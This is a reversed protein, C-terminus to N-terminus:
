PSTAHLVSRARRTQADLKTRADVLDASHATIMRREYAELVAARLGPLDTARECAVDASATRTNLPTPFAMEQGLAVASPTPARFGRRQMCRSWAGVVRRVRSDRDARALAANAAHEVVVQPREDDGLRALVARVCATLVRLTHDDEPIGSVETAPRIWYGTASAQRGDILGLLSSDSEVPDPPILDAAEAAVGHRRACAQILMNEARIM